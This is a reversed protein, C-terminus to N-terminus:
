RAYGSPMVILKRICRAMLVAKERGPSPLISTTSKWPLIRNCGQQGMEGADDGRVQAVYLIRDGFRATRKRFIFRPSQTNFDGLSLAILANTINMASNHPGPSRTYALHLASPGSIM